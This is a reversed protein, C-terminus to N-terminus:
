RLQRIRRGVRHRHSRTGLENLMLLTILAIGIMLAVFGWGYASASWMFGSSLAMFGSSIQGTVWKKRLETYFLGVVTTTFVSMALVLLSIFRVIILSESNAVEGGARVALVFLIFIGILPLGIAITHTSDGSAPKKVPSTPENNM